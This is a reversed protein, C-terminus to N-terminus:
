EVLRLHDQKSPGNWENGGPVQVSENVLNDKLRGMGFAKRQGKKKLSKKYKGKCVQIEFPKLHWLLLQVDSDRTGPLM